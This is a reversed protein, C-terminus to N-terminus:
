ETIDEPDYLYWNGYHGREKLAGYLCNKDVDGRNILATASIVEGTIRSKLVKGGRKPKSTDWAEQSRKHEMLCHYTCCYKITNTKRDRYKYAWEITAYFSKGCIPCIRLMAGIIPKRM